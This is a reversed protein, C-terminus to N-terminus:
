NKERRRELLDVFAEIRTVYGAEGTMEDVVLTMIPFDKDRSVSSLISKSVIEPMCGMPFIQIAGDLGEQKSIVAEGICEKAHGGIGIPLYEMAAKNIDRSNLKLPFLALNKIWWSPTLRRKTSVGYDMLKDEIYLNAFPEIVTYIEGIIAIKIPNKEHNIEVKDLKNSYEKLVEIMDKSNNTKLADAKCKNLIRKCEGKNMEYGALYRAKAEIDDILKMVKIADGLAKVKQLKNKSSSGSIKGIRRLLERIGIDTPVDLVIFDVNYGLRRLINIQLECYEGFRCPGCSGTILVTDAGHEISHIYNGINIKFPLCIEEPSYLSGIEIADKNSLPPIVYQVGLSDFLAKVAIYVNGMHPFTVVM